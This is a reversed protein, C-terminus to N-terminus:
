NGSLDAIHPQGTASTKMLNSVNHVVTRAANSHIKVDVHQPPSFSGKRAELAAAKSAKEEIAGIVSYIKNMHNELYEIMEDNTTLSSGEGEILIGNTSSYGPAAVSEPPAIQSLIGGRSGSDSRFAKSINSTSSAFM